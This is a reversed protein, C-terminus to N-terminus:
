TLDQVNKATVFSSATLAIKVRKEIFFPIKYQEQFLNVILPATATPVPVHV